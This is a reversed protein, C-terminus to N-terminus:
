IKINNIDIKEKSNYDEPIRVDDEFGFPENKRKKTISTIKIMKDKEMMQNNNILTNQNEKDNTTQKRGKLYIDYQKLELIVDEIKNNLNQIIDLFEKINDNSESAEM